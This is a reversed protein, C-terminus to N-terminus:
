PDDELITPEKPQGSLMMTPCTGMLDLTVDELKLSSSDITKSHGNMNSIDEDSVSMELNLQEFIGVPVLSAAGGKGKGRSKTKRLNRKGPLRRGHSVADLESGSSSEQLPLNDRRQGRKSEASHRLLRIGSGVTPNYPPLMKPDKVKACKYTPKPPLESTKPSIKEAPDTKPKLSAPFPRTAREMPLPGPLKMKGAPMIPLDLGYGVNPQLPSAPGVPKQNDLQNETLFLSFFIVDLFVFGENTM